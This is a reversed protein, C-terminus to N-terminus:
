AYLEGDIIIEDINMWENEKLISSSSCSTEEKRNDIRIVNNQFYLDINDKFMFTISINKESFYVNDITNALNSCENFLVTKTELDALVYSFSFIAVAIIIGYLLFAIRSMLYELM